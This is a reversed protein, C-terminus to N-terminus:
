PSVVLFDAVIDHLRTKGSIDGVSLINCFM